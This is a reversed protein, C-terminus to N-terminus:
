DLNSWRDQEFHYLRRGAPPIVVYLLTHGGDARSWYSFEGYSLVYKARPVAPLFAPVLDELGEPLKGNAKEYARCAAIVREANTRSTYSHFQLAGLTAAGLLLYLVARAARSRALPQQGRILSWVCALMLIILGALAVLLSFFGQGSFGLDFLFLLGLVLATRTMRPPTKQPMTM